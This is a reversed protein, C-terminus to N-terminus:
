RLSVQHVTRWALGDYEIVDVEDISVVADLTWGCLEDWAAVAVEPSTTRPHTLTVHPVYV